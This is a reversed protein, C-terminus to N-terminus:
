GTRKGSELGSSFGLALERVEGLARERAENNIEYTHIDDCRMCRCYITWKGWQVEVDQTHGKHAMLFAGIAAEEHGERIMHHDGM